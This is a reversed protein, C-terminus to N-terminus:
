RARCFRLGWPEPPGRAPDAILLRIPPDSSLIHQEAVPFRYASARPHSWGFLLDLEARNHSAAARDWSQPRHKRASAGLQNRAM